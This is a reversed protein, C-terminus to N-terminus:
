IQENEPNKHNIETQTCSISYFHSGKCRLIAFRSFFHPNKGVRWCIATSAKLHHNVTNRLFQIHRSAVLQRQRVVALTATQVAM